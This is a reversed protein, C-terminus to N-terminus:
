ASVIAISASAGIRDAGARIMAIADAKSRIGGSAKVRVDASVHERLLEVDELTAGGTSFGTSTKIFDAGAESVLKCALIKEERTLLCTEIIVKVIADDGLRRVRNVVAAVDRGAEEARGSKLLGPNMVMDFELAGAQFTEEVERLKGATTGAGLPFGIVTCVKVPSSGIENAALEVWIPNICVSAFGYDNAERCLKRIQENSADPRLLTHDIVVAISADYPLVPSM